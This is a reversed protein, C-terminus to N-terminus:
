QSLRPILNPNIPVLAILKLFLIPDEYLQDNHTKRRIQNAPEIAVLLPNM